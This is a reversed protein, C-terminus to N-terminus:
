ARVSRSAGVMEVSAGIQDGHENQTKRPRSVVSGREWGWSAEAWALMAAFATFTAALYAVSRSTESMRAALGFTTCARM